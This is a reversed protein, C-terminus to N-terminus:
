KPRFYFIDADGYIILKGDEIKYSEASQLNKLYVREQADKEDGCSMETSGIPSPISLDDGKVEYSGFYSNCGGSGTVQKDASNFIATIETDAMVDKLKGRESYSELVWTTDKFKPGGGCGILSVTIVLVILVCIGLKM